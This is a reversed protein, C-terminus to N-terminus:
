IDKNKDPKIGRRVLEKRPAKLSALAMVARKRHMKYYSQLEEDTEPIYYGDNDSAIIYGDLRANLVLQSINRKSTELVSAIKRRCVANKKGKGIHPLILEYQKM